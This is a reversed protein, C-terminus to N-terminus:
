TSESRLGQYQEVEPPTDAEALEHVVDKSLHWDSRQSLLYILGRRPTERRHRVQSPFSLLYRHILGSNSKPNEATLSSHIM